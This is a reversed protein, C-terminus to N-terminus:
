SSFPDIDMDVAVIDVIDDEDLGNENKEEEYTDAEVCSEHIKQLIAYDIDKLSVKHLVAFSHGFLFYLRLLVTDVPVTRPPPGIEKIM